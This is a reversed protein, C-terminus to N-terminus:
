SFSPSAPKGAARPPPTLRALAAEPGLLIEILRARGVSLPSPGSAIQEVAARALSDFAEAHGLRRAAIELRRLDRALPELRTETRGERPDALPAVLGEALGAAYHARCADLLRRRLLDVRRQRHPRHGPGSPLLRELLIAFRQLARSTEAGVGGPQLAAEMRDLMFDIAQEAARGIQSAQLSPSALLAASPPFRTLLLILLAGSPVSRRAAAAELWLRFEAEDVTEGDAIRQETAGLWIAESLIAGVRGAIAAHDAQTLGTAVHWEPPAPARVLVQSAAPWLMRGARLIAGAEGAAAHDLVGRMEALLPGLAEEVQRVLPALATRPIGLGDRRWERAPQLLPEAPMLMLRGPRLRRIVGLRGLRYRVPALLAEAASGDELADVMSVVSALQEDRAAELAQRLERMALDTQRTM